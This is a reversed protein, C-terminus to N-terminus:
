RYVDQGRDKAVPYRASVRKLIPGTILGALISVIFWGFIWAIWVQWPAM